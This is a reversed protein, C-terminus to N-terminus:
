KEAMKYGRRINREWTIGHLRDEGEVKEESV